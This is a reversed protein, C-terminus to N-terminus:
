KNKPLIKNLVKWLNKGNHKHIELLNAVHNRKAKTIERNINNRAAKAASWDEPKKSARAKRFLHDRVNMLEYLDSNLWPHNDDSIRIEKIPAHIECIKLYIEKFHGLM